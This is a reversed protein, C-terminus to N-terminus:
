YAISEFSTVFYNLISATIVVHLVASRQTRKQGLACQRVFAFRIQLLASSSCRESRPMTTTSEVWRPLRRRSSGPVAEYHGSIVARLFIGLPRFYMGIRGLSRGRVSLHSHRHPRSSSDVLRAKQGLPDNYQPRIVTWRDNLMRILSCPFLWGFTATVM